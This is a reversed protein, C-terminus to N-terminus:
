SYVDFVEDLAPQLNVARLGILYGLIQVTANAQRDTGRQMLLSRRADGSFLPTTM